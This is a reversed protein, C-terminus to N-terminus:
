LHLHSPSFILLSHFSAYHAANAPYFAKKFADNKTIFISFVCYGIGRPLIDYGHLALFLQLFCTSVAESGSTALATFFNLFNMLIEMCLRLYTKKRLLQKVGRRYSYMQVKTIKHVTIIPESYQVVVFFRAM